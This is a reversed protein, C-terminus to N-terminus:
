LANRELYPSRDPRRVSMFHRPATRLSDLLATATSDAEERITADVVVVLLEEGQPFAARLEAQRHKWPLSASFLADTDTTVGLRAYITWVGAVALLLAVLMVLMARRGCTAAVLGLM